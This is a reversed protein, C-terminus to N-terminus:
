NGKITYKEGDILVTEGQLYTALEFDVSGNKEYIVELELGSEFVKKIGEPKTGDKIITM